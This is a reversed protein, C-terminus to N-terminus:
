SKPNWSPCSALGQARWWGRRSLLYPDDRGNGDIGTEHLHEDPKEAHRILLVNDPAM